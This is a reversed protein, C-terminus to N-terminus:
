KGCNETNNQKTKRWLTTRSIGLMEAMEKRTLKKDMSEQAALDSLVNQSLTEFVDRVDAGNIEDGMCLM